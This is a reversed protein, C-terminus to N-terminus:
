SRVADEVLNTFNEIANQEAPRIHAKGPVRGGSVKAHGKELLHTLQPKKKNVVITKGDKQVTGWGSAYDGGGPSRPSTAKLESVAEKAAKKEADKVKVEVDSSYIALQRAIEDALNDINAM